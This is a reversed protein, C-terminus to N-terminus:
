GEKGEGMGGIGGGIEEDLDGGRGEGGGWRGIRGGGWSGWRGPCVAM